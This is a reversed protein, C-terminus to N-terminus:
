GKEVYGKGTKELILRDMARRAAPEDAYDKVTTTGKGGIRGYCTLLQRGDVWVEWFKNSTGEVCEFRRRGDTRVAPRSATGPAPAPPAPNQEETVVKEAFGDDRKDAILEVLAARAEEPTAFSETKTRVTGTKGYRLTLTAGDRMAEWVADGYALSVTEPPLASRAGLAPTKPLNASGGDPRVGVYVPFRPVGDRSLEQYKFTITTGIAPPTVREADKLGTGVNFRVGSPLEVLLSGVRGTHKGLGAEYGIVKAEADHFRKVKLLTPSRGPAYLSGPQRFMLGEGGLAEIRGLEALLHDPGRCPEHPLASTFELGRRNLLDDLFRLRAEFGGGHAPADFVVFRVQRWRDGGGQSRVISITETFAKRGVWLEGDLPAAPLGATFWEPALFLNGQRSIFQKGDWYARVGDLKESMWWGTLDTVADWSEALLVGPGERLAEDDPKRSPLEGVSALRLAEAEDGRLKRIHKCTRVAPDLSQNRWAPCTCSWGGPGCNKIVYPKAGSGKIEVSEGVAPETM